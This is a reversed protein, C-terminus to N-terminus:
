EAKRPPRIMTERTAFDKNKGKNPVFGFREYFEMLRAKSGGFDSTPSLALPIGKADAEAILDAMVKSGLGRSREAEPVVIRGLTAYGGTSPPSIDLKIGPYKSALSEGFKEGASMQLAGVRGNFIQEADIIDQTMWPPKARREEPTMDARKQVNRAEVEGGTRMYMDKASYPTTRKNLGYLQVLQEGIKADEVGLRFDKALDMAEKSPLWDKIGAKEYALIAAEPSGHKAVERNFSLADRSLKAIDAQPYMDLNAGKAFGEAEQVGHQMEHLLVSRMPVPGPARAEIAPINPDYFGGVPGAGNEIPTAKATTSVRRLEPYADYLEKHWLVGPATANVQGGRALTQEAATGLKAANDPIEFRWQGDGGRFWGTEDWIASRPSGGAAMEEARALKARDATQALRGGFVGAAGQVAFPSAVGVLNAATELAAGRQEDGPQWAMPATLGMPAPADTYDERRLGPPGTRRAADIVTKPISATGNIIATVLKDLISPPQEAVEAPTGVGFPLYGAM